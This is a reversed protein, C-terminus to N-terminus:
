RVRGPTAGDHTAGCVVVTDTRISVVHEAAQCGSNGVAHKVVLYPTSGPATLVADNGSGTAIQNTTAGAASEGYVTWANTQTSVDDNTTTIRFGTRTRCAAATFAASFGSCQVVSFDDVLTGQGGAAATGYIWLQSFNQTPTFYTYDPTWASTTQTVQKILQSPPSPQSAANPSLGNAAKLYLASQNGRRFQVRYTQGATFACATYIGSTGGLSASKNGNVEHQLPNGHSAKWAPVGGSVFLSGSGVQSPGSQFNGNQVLQQAHASAALGLVAALCATMLPLRRTM